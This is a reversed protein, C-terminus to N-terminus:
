YEQSQGLDLIESDSLNGYYDVESVANDYLSSYHLPPSEYGTYQLDEELWDDSNNDEGDSMRIYIPAARNLKPRKDFFGSPLNRIFSNPPIGEEDSEVLVTPTRVPKRSANEESSPSCQVEQTSSICMNSSLVSNSLSNCGSTSNSLFGGPMDETHQEYFILEGESQTSNSPSNPNAEIETNEENTEPEPIATREPLLPVIDNSYHDVFEQLGLGKKIVPGLLETYEVVNEIRREVATLITPNNEYVKKYWDKIEYNSTIIVVSPNFNVCGGKTEVTVPYRDLLRNLLGVKLWSSFEDIIVTQQGHYGDFWKANDQHYIWYADPFNEAAWRTKGVGSDGYVLMVETKWSRPPSIFSKYLEFGKYYRVFSGFHADAIDLMKEGARLKLRIEDLDQRFGQGSPRTGFEFPGAVHTDSKGCYDFNQATSGHMKEFHATPHIHKKLWVIDHPAKLQLFGQLHYGEGTNVISSTPAKELSWFAFNILDTISHIEIWNKSYGTMSDLLKNNNDKWITFTFYRATPLRNVRPM